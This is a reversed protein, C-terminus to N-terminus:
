MELLALRVLNLAHMTATTQIKKRVGFTNVKKTVTKEKTAVAIYILGVPKEETGGGPGAIGTTAVAIDVGSKLLGQAMEIATQESVAGYEELTEKLVSLRAIKAENSYAIIGETFVASIGPNSILANSLMGGTCSEAVAIKKNKALLMEAVVNELKQDGTAYVYEGLRERIHDEVPQILSTPDEGKKTKATIRLTVESLGAYPAVTPNKQQAIIDKITDEVASEGRGFIRLVVSSITSDSKKELYPMIDHDFMFTLEIPPGPLVIISKCNHEVICGPATGRHNEVIISGEPFYAQRFNNDTIKANIKKYLNKLKEETFPDFVMKLGLMHAITEKTLDDATPGLGGSTIIIDSRDYATSLVQQLRRPNDGVVSQFYLDIGLRSLKEAIYQADTNVIQGMLLETGISIIEAVM